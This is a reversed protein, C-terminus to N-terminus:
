FTRVRIEDIVSMNRMEARLATEMVAGVSAFAFVSALIMMQIPFHVTFSGFRYQMLVILLWTLIAILPVAVALSRLLLHMLEIRYTRITQEKTMGCSRLSAIEKRREAFLASVSSYINLLSILAVIVTFSIMIIRIMVAIIQYTTENPKGESLVLQANEDASLTNLKRILEMAAPDNEDAIMRIDGYIMSTCGAAEATTRSMIAWIRESHLTFLDETDEKHVNAELKLVKRNETYEGSEDTGDFIFELADGPQLSTMRSIEYFRYESAKVGNIMMNGTSLEGSEYVMFGDAAPEKGAKRQLIAAYQEDDLVLISIYAMGEAFQQFDEDTLDPDYLLLIERMRQRYEDSIPAEELRGGLLANGYLRVNRIGSTRSFEDQFGAVTSFGKIMEVTYAHEGDALSGEDVTVEVMGEGMLKFNVMQIIMSSAFSIVFLVTLFGASATIITRGRRSENALFASALMKEASDYIKRKKAKKVEENGRISDIVGIKEVKLAPLVSSILAAATSCLVTLLVSLPRIQLHVGIEQAAGTDALFVLRYAYPRLLSVGFYVIVLGFLFGLPLAVLLHRCTEYYVSSRKQKRTAGAAALMGLYTRREDFSLQFINYILVVSICLIMVAFFVQAIIVLANLNGMSSDGRFALVQNNVEYQKDSMNSYFSLSDMDRSFMGMGNFTGETPVATDALYGVACSYGSGAPEFPPTEMVGCVTYTQHMGTSEHVEEHTSYFDADEVPDFYPFNYPMEVAEDPKVSFSLFPFVTTTTGKNHLYRRFFDAEVTDGVALGSSASVIIEDSAEPLRGERVAINNMEFMPKQYLRVQLMNGEDLDTYHLDQSLAATQIGEMNRIEEYEEATVDYFAFHWSGYVRSAATEMYHMVTDRGVFVCTMLAIMLILSIRATRARKPNARIYRDTIVHIINRM